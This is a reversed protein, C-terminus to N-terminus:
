RLKKYILQLILVLILIGLIPLLFLVYNVLIASKLSFTGKENTLWAIAYTAPYIQLITLIASIVLPIGLTTGLLLSVWKPLTAPKDPDKM